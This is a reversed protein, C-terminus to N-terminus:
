SRSRKKPALSRAKRDAAIAALRQNDRTLYAQERVPLKNFPVTKAKKPPAPPPNFRAQVKALSSEVQKIQKKDCPKLKGTQSSWHYWTNAHYTSRPGFRVAPDRDLILTSGPGLRYCCNSNSNNVVITSNAGASLCVNITNALITSDKGCALHDYTIGYTDATFADAAEVLPFEPFDDKFNNFNLEISDQFRAGKNQIRFPPPFDHCTDRELDDIDIDLDIDLTKLSTFTTPRICRTSSAKNSPDPYEFLDALSPRTRNYYSPSLDESDQDQLQKYPTTNPLRGADYAKRLWDLAADKAAERMELTFWTPNRKEDIKFAFGSPNFNILRDQSSDDLYEHKPFFEWKAFKLDEGNPIQSLVASNESQIDSHSHLAYSNKTLSPLFIQGTRTTIGSIPKCM